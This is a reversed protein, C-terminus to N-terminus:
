AGMVARVILHLVAVSGLGTWYGAYWRRGARGPIAWDYGIWAFVLLVPLMIDRQRYSLNITLYQAFYIVVFCWLLIIGFSREQRRRFRLWTVALGMGVFPLIAYWFLMGPFLYYQGAQLVKFHWDSPLIWPFPGFLRRFMNAPFTLLGVRWDEASEEATAPRRRGGHLRNFLGPAYARLLPTDLTYSAMTMVMTPSLPWRGRTPVVEVIVFVLVALAFALASRFPRTRVAHMALLAAVFGVEIYAFSYFRSTRLYMGCMLAAGAYMV